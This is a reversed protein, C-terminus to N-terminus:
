HRLFVFYVKGPSIDHYCKFWMQRKVLYIKKNPLNQLNSTLRIVQLIMSTKKKSWYLHSWFHSFPHWFVQFVLIFSHWFFSHECGLFGWGGAQAWTWTQVRSDSSSQLEWTQLSRPWLSVVPWLSVQALPPGWSARKLNCPWSCPLRPLFDLQKVIYCSSLPLM